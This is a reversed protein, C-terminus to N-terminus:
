TPHLQFNWTGGTGNQTLLKTSDVPIQLHYVQNNGSGPTNSYFLLSPEDHGTYVGEYTYPDLTETCTVANADCTPRGFTSYEASSWPALILGCAGVALLLVIGRKM